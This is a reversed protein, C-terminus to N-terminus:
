DVIQRAGTQDAARMANIIRITHAVQEPSVEGDVTGGNRVAHHFNEWQYKNLPGYDRMEIRRNLVTGDEQRLQLLLEKATLV